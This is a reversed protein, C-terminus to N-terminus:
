KKVTKQPFINIKEKYNSLAQKENKIERESLTFYLNRYKTLLKDIEEHTLPTLHNSNQESNFEKMERDGM